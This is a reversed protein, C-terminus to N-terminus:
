RPAHGAWRPLSPPPLEGVRQLRRSMVAAPRPVPAADGSRLGWATRRRRRRWHASHSRSPAGCRPQRRRPPLGGRSTTPPPPPPPPRPLRNQPPQPCYCRRICSSSSRWDAACCYHSHHCHSHRPSQSHQHIRDPASAPVSQELTEVALAVGGVAAAAAVVAAEAAAARGM